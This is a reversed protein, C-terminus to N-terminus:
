PDELSRLGEPREDIGAPLKAGLGTHGGLGAVLAGGELAGHGDGGADPEILQSFGAQRQLERDLARLVVLVVIQVLWHDRTPPRHAPRSSRGGAGQSGRVLLDPLVSSIAIGRVITDRIWAASKPRRTVSAWACGAARGIAAVSGPPDVVAVLASGDRCSLRVFFGQVPSKSLISSRRTM